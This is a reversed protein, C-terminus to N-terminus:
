GWGANLNVPLHTVARDGHGYDILVWVVPAPSDDGLWISSGVEPRVGLASVIGAPKLYGDFATRPLRGGVYADGWWDVPLPRGAITARVRYAPRRLWIALGVRDCAISNAVPCNVGMYPPQSFATAPSIERTGAPARLTQPPLAGARRAGASMAVAVGVAATVAM